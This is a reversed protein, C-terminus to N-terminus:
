STVFNLTHIFARLMIDMNYKEEVFRRSEKGMKCLHDRDKICVDIIRALYDIDGSRVHFGNVGERILDGQTGDGEAVVVPKGYLMAEQISLGGAGPLVFLDSGGFCLALDKGTRRGLFRTQPFVQAALDELVTRDSGAGVILLECSATLRSCAQILDGVRKEPGLRGVYLIVPYDSLGLDKKWQGLCGTKEEIKKLMLEAQEGSVSNPAIFIKERPYGLKNYDCAGKESYAILADFNDYFNSIIKNRVCKAVHTSDWDM